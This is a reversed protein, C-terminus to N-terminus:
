QSSVSRIGSYLRLTLSRTTTSPRPQPLPDRMCICAGAGGRPTPVPVRCSRRGDPSRPGDAPADPTPRRRTHTYDGHAASCALLM